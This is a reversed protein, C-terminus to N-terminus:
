DKSSPWRYATKANDHFLRRPFDGGQENALDVAIAQVDEYGGFRESVPWNSGYILRREGFAQYATEFVPRYFAIDVPSKKEPQSAGEVLASFKCYVNEFRKLGLMDKRWDSPPSKGDIRVNALHNVVITLNEFKAALQAVLPLMEPGGNVDLSLKHRAFEKIDALFDGDNLHSKLLGSGIRIGRFRPQNAFRAIHKRFDATGPDLHGVIALVFPDREALDLLWQNDEVWGSAEVVVTGVVGAPEAIRRYDAPMVKRYLVKDDKSPWPVGEPRTPDYFHTHTDVIPIKSNADQSTSLGAHATPLNEQSVAMALPVIAGCGLLERRTLRRDSKHDSTM